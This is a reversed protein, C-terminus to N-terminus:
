VCFSLLMGTSTWTWCVAVVPAEFDNTYAIPTSFCCLGTQAPIEDFPHAVGYAVRGGHARARNDRALGRVTHRQPRQQWRPMTPAAWAKTSSPTSM